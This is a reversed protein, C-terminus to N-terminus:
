ADRDLAPDLGGTTVEETVVDTAALVWEDLRRKVLGLLGLQNGADSLLRDLRRPWDRPLLALVPKDVGTSTRAARALGATLTTRNRVLALLRSWPVDDAVDLAVALNRTLRRVVDTNYVTSAAHEYAVVLEDPSALELLLEARAEAPSLDPSVVRLEAEAALLAADLRTVDVRSDEDTAVVFEVRRSTTVRRVYPTSVDIPDTM